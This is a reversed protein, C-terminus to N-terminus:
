PSGIQGLAVRRNALARPVGQDVGSRAGALGRREDVLQELHHRQCGIRRREGGTADRREGERALCRLLNDNTRATVPSASLCAKLKRRDSGTLQNCPPVLDPPASIRSAHYPLRVDALDLEASRALRPFMCRSTRRPPM